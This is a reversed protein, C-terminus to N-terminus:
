TWTFLLVSLPLIMKKKYQGDAFMMCMVLVICFMKPILLLPCIFTVYLARKVSHSSWILLFTSQCKKLFYCSNTNTSPPPTESHIITQRYYRFVFYLKKKSELWNRLTKPCFSCGILYGPCFSTPHSSGKKIPANVHTLTVADVHVLKPTGCHKLAGPLLGIQKLTLFPITSVSM